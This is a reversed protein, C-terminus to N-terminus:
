PTALPVQSWDAERAWDATIREEDIMTRMTARGNLSYQSMRMRYRGCDSLQVLEYCVTGAKLQPTDATVHMFIMCTRGDPDTHDDRAWGIVGRDSGFNLRAGDFTGVSDIVQSRGDAFRYINSQSYVDPGPRDRHLRFIVRSRHTSMPAGAADYRRYLGEWVGESRSMVPLARQFAAADVANTM